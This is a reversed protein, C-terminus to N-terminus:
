VPWFLVPLALFSHPILLPPLHFVPSPPNSVNAAPAPLRLSPNLHDLARSVWTIPAEDLCPHTQIVNRVLKYVARRYETVQPPLLPVLADDPSM